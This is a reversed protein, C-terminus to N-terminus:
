VNFKNKYEDYVSSDLWKEMRKNIINVTINGPDNYLYKDFKGLLEPEKEKIWKRINEIEKESIPLENPNDSTTKKNPPKIGSKKAMSIENESIELQQALKNAAEKLGDDDFKQCHVIASLALHRDEILSEMNIMHGTTRYYHRSFALAQLQLRDSM